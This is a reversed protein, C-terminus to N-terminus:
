EAKKKVSKKKVPEEETITEVTANENKVTKSKKKVPESIEEVVEATEIVPEKEIQDKLLVYWSFMKRIDSDHVRDDDFDPLIKKLTSRLLASESQSSFGSCLEDNDKMKLLVDNLPMEGDTTYVSIDQLMIIRQTASVPMRKQDTFSEVVYGGNRLQAVMKFLGGMGPISIIKALSM